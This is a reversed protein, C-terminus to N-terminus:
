THQKKVSEGQQHSVAAQGTVTTQLGCPLCYGRKAERGMHVLSTNVEM